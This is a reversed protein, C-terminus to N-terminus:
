PESKVNESLWIRNGTADEYLATRAGWPRMQIDQVVRLGAALMKAHLADLDTVDFGISARTEQGPTAEYVSFLLFDAGSGWTAHYHVPEGDAHRHGELPVGIEDRYIRPAAAIDAVFLEVENLRAM